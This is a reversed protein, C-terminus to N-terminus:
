PAVRMVRSSHFGGYPARRVEPIRSAAIQRAMDRLDPNLLLERLRSLGAREPTGVLIVRM